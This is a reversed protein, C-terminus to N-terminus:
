SSASTAPAAAVPLRQALAAFAAVPLQEARVGPDVGAAAIDAEALVGGLANRLTKRRQNFAATVVRAFAAEDVVALEQLPRPVLRVVASQVQPPPTFAGAPVVFM